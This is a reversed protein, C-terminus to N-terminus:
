DSGAEEELIVNGFFDMSEAQLDYVAEELKWLLGGDRIQVGGSLHVLGKETDMDMEAAEIEMGSWLIRVPGPSVLTASSGLWELYDSELQFNDQEGVVLVPGYLRLVETKRNWQARPAEINLYPEQDQFVVMEELDGLTVLEGEQLVSRSLIEWQRQGDKRGVLRSELLQVSPPVAVAPPAPQSLFRVTIFVIVAVLVASCAAIRKAKTSLPM